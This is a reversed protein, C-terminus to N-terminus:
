IPLRAKSKSPEVILGNNVYIDKKVNNMKQTPDFVKGNVIKFKM